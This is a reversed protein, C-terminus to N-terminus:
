TEDQEILKRYDAPALLRELESADTLRIRCIWGDGYSDTNVKEPADELDNNVEIVTGSAPAYVDSAAKASEVAALEDAAAVAKDTPPLEVYTIDGMAHQAHDTIGVTAMDGDVRVWEHDKSYRLGDPINSLETM